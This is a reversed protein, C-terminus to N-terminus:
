AVDISRSESVVQSKGLLKAKRLNLSAQNATFGVGASLTQGCLSEYVSRVREIDTSFAISEKWQVLLDDGGAFVVRATEFSQVVDCAACLAATISKSYREAGDVDDNLLLLELRAGVNDGDFYAYVSNVKTTSWQSTTHTPSRTYRSALRLALM